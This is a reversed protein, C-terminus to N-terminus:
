KKSEPLVLDAAADKAAKALPDRGPCCLDVAAEVTMPGTGFSVAVRDVVVQMDRDLPFPGGDERLAEALSM